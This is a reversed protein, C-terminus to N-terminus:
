ASRKDVIVHLVPPVPSVEEFVKRWNSWDEM